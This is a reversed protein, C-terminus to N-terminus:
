VTTFYVLRGFWADCSQQVSSKNQLVNITMAHPHLQHMIYVVGRILTVNCYIFRVVIMSSVGSTEPSLCALSLDLTWM